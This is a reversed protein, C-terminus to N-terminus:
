GIISLAISKSTSAIAINSLLNGSGIFSNATVVGTIVLGQPASLTQGPPIVAGYKLEVPGNTPDFGELNNVQIKSAM